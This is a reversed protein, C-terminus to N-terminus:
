FSRTMLTAVSKFGLRGMLKGVRLDTVTTISARKVGRKELEALVFKILARGIGNRHAPLVYVSDEQAIFEGNHMDNTLYVNSYGVPVGDLRVVFNLLWGGEFAKFYEDLRPKYAGIRVGESALRKQMEAYQTRYIPELEAYSVHGPELGIEYTM